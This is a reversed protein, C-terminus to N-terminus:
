NICKYSGVPRSEQHDTTQRNKLYPMHRELIMQAGYDICSAGGKAAAGFDTTAMQFKTFRKERWIDISTVGGQELTPRFEAEYEPAQGIRM